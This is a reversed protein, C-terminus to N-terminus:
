AEHEDRYEKPLLEKLLPLQHYSHDVFWTIFLADSLGSEIKGPAFLPHEALFLEYYIVAEGKECVHTFYWRYFTIADAFLVEKKAFHLDRVAVLVDLALARIYPMDHKGIPDPYYM